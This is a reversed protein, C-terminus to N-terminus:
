GRGEMEGFAGVLVVLIKVGGTLAGELLGVFVGEGGGLAEVKGVLAAEVEGLAGVGLTGEVGSLTEVEGVLAADVGALLGVVGVWAAFGLLLSTSLGKKSSVGIFDLAVFFDFSFFVLGLFFLAELIAGDGTM